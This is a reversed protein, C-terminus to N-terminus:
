LAELELYDKWKEKPTRFRENVTVQIGICVETKLESGNEM